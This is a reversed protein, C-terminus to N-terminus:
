LLETLREDRLGHSAGHSPDGIDRTTPTTSLQSSVRTVHRSDVVMEQECTTGTETESPEGSSPTVLTALTVKREVKGVEKVLLEKVEKALLCMLLFPFPYLCRTM